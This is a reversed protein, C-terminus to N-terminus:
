QIHSLLAVLTEYQQLFQGGSFATLLARYVDVLGDYRPNHALRAAILANASRTWNDLSLLRAAPSNPNANFLQDIDDVSTCTELFPMGDSRILVSIANAARHAEEDSTVKFEGRTRDGFLRWIDISLTRRFKEDEKRIQTVQKFITLIAESRVGVIPSVAFGLGASYYSWSIIQTVDGLTKALWNTAKVYKFNDQALEGGLDQALTKDIDSKKMEM